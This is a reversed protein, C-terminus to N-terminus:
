FKVVCSFGSFPNVSWGWFQGVLIIVAGGFYSCHLQFHSQFKNTDFNRSL